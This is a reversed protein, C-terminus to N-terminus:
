SPEPACGRGRRDSGRDGLEGPELGAFLPIRALLDVEDVM